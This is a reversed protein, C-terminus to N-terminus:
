SRPATQTGQVWWEAGMGQHTQGNLLSGSDWTLAPDINSFDTTEMFSSDFYNHHYLSSTDPHVGASPFLTDQHYPGSLAITALDWTKPFQSFDLNPGHDAVSTSPAAPTQFSSLRVDFAAAGYDPSPFHSAQPPLTDIFFDPRDDPERPVSPAPPSQRTGRRKQNPPKQELDKQGTPTSVRIRLNTDFSSHCDISM